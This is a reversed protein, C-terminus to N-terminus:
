RCEITIVPSSGIFTVRVVCQIIAGPPRSDVFRGTSFVVTGNSLEIVDRWSFHIQTTHVSHDEPGIDWTVVGALVDGNAATFVVVGEGALSGETEGPIFDAEGHATFRGLHSAIGSLM